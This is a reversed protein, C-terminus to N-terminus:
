NIEIVRKKNIEETKPIVIKLVGNDFEARIEDQKIDTFSFTRSLKGYTRERRIYKKEDSNNEQFKEAIVVLVGDECELKIDEKSYGPVDMVINYSGDKEYVDCKMDNIKYSKGFDDFIEDLYINRPILSM